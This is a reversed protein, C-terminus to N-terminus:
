LQKNSKEKKSFVFLFAAKFSRSLTEFGVIVIMVITGLVGSKKEKKVKPTEKKVEKVVEKKVEKKEKKDIEDPSIIELKRTAFDEEFPIDKVKTVKKKPKIDKEKAM